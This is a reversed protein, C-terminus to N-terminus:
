HLSSVPLVNEFWLPIRVHLSNVPASDPHRCTCVVERTVGDECQTHLDSVRWVRRAGSNIVKDSFLIVSSVHVAPIYQSQSLHLRVWHLFAGFGSAINIDCQCLLPCKETIRSLPSFFWLYGGFRFCFCMVEVSTCTKAHAFSCTLFM